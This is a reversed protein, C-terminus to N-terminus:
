LDMLGCDYVSLAMYGIWASHILDLKVSNNSLFKSLEGWCIHDNRGRTVVPDRVLVMTRILYEHERLLGLKVGYLEGMLTLYPTDKTLRFDSKHKAKTMAPSYVTVQLWQDNSPQIHHGTVAQWQQATYLSRYGGTMAPSYVTVQLRRENSPQICHGTVSPWQQITYLSRYGSTMTPSYVTVQLWQDNNPQICHGTVVQETLRHWLSAQGSKSSM